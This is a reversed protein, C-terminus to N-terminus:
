TASTGIRSDSTLFIMKAWILNTDIMTSIQLAKQQVAPRCHDRTWLSGYPIKNECFTPNHSVNFLADSAFKSVKEFALLQFQSDSTMHVMGLFIVRQDEITALFCCIADVM